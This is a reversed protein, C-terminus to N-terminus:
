KQKNTQKNTQKNKLVPNRQTARATRYSVRYVLSAEFRGAEKEWTSPNFAHVVVAQSMRNKLFVWVRLRWNEFEMHEFHFLSGTVTLRAVQCYKKRQKTKSNREPLLIQEKSHTRSVRNLVSKHTGTTDHNEKLSCAIKPEQMVACIKIANNFTITKNGESL